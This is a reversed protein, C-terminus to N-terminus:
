RRKSKIMTAYLSLFEREGEEVIVIVFQGPLCHKSVTPTHVVYKKVKPAVEYIKLLKNM